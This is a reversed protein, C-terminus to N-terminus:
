RVGVVAADLGGRWLLGAESFGAARLADLHWRSPPLWEATHSDSPYIREREVALPKLSEDAAVHAWWDQWSLVAGATYRAARETDARGQLRESLGPLGADPMHDANVFIGGPRLM